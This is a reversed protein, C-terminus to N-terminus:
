VKDANETLKSAKRSEDYQVKNYWFVGGLALTIGVGNLPAVVNGFYLISSIIVFIRKCTNAVSYTLPSVMSLVKFAVMSQMFHCFGNALILYGYTGNSNLGNILQTSETFLWPPLLIIFAAVSTYLLLNIHDIQKSKFLVKSYINQASFIATSLIATAFGIFNYNLETFSSLCVGMVIPIVSTIVNTSFSEQFFYWSLAITFIPSSAKVTHTFSVPVFAISIQSLVHALINGISLPVVKKLLDKTMPELQYTGVKILIFCYLGTFLFQTETLTMPLALVELIAKNTNSTLSSFIYWALFFLAVKANNAFWEVKEPEMSLIQMLSRNPKRGAVVEVQTTTGNM